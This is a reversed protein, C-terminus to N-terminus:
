EQPGRLMPPSAQQNDQTLQQLQDQNGSTPAQQLLMARQRELNSRLEQIIEEKRVNEHWLKALVASVFSGLLTIFFIAVPTEM